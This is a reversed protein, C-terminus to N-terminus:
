ILESVFLFYRRRYLIFYFVKLSYIRNQTSNIARENRSRILRWALSASHRQLRTRTEIITHCIFYCLYIFIADTEFYENNCKLCDM